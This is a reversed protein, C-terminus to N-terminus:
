YTNILDRMSYMELGLSFFRRLAGGLSRWRDGWVGLGRM